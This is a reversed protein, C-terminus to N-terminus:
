LAVVPLRLALLGTILSLSVATTTPRIAFYYARGAVLNAAIGAGVASGNLTVQSVVQDGNTDIIAFEWDATYGTITASFSFNYVDSITPEFEDDSFQYIDNVPANDV